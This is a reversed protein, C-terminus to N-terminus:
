CTAVIGGSPDLQGVGIPSVQVALELDGAGRGYGTALLPNKVRGERLGRDEAVLKRLVGVRQADVVEAQDPQTPRGATATPPQGAQPGRELAALLWNADVAQLQLLPSSPLGPSWAVLTLCVLKAGHCV